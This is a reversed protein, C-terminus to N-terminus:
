QHRLRRASHARLPRCPRGRCGSQIEAETAGERGYAINDRITGSFLWADQLVMGFLRRLDERTM